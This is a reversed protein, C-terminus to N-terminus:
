MILVFTAKKLTWSKDFWVSGDSFYEILESQSFFAPGGFFGSKNQDHLCALLLSSCAAPLFVILIIPFM